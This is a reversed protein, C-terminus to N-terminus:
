ISCKLSSNKPSSVQSLSYSYKNNKNLVQTQNEASVQLVVQLVLELCTTKCGRSAEKPVANMHDVHM